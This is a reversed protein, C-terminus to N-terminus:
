DDLTLCHSVVVISLFMVEGRDKELADKLNWVEQLEAELENRKNESENWEVEMNATRAELEDLELKLGDREQALEVLGKELIQIKSGASETHGWQAELESKLTAHEENRTSLQQNVEQLQEELRAKQVGLGEYKMKVEDLEQRLELEVTRFRQTEESNKQDKEALLRKLEEEDFVGVSINGMMDIQEKAERIGEKLERDSEDRTWLSEKLNMIDESRERVLGELTEVEGQLAHEKRLWDTKERELSAIQRHLMRLAEGSAEDMVSREMSEQRSEEVAEELQRCARELEQVKKRWSRLSNKRKADEKEVDSLKKGLIEVLEDRAKLDTEYQNCLETRLALQTQLSIILNEEKSTKRNHKAAGKPPTTPIMTQPTYYTNAHASFPDPESPGGSYVVLGSSSEDNIDAEPQVPKTPTSRLMTQFVTDSMARSRHGKTSPPASAASSSLVSEPKLESSPYAAEDATSKSADGGSNAMSYFLTQGFSFSQSREHLPLPFKPSKENAHFITEDIIEPVAVLPKGQEQKEPEEAAKEKGKGKLDKPRYPTSTMNNSYLNPGGEQSLMQSNDNVSDNLPSSDFIPSNVDFQLGPPPFSPLDLQQSVDFLNSSEDPVIYNPFSLSMNSNDINSNNPSPAPSSPQQTPLSFIEAVSPRSKSPPSRKVSPPSGSASQNAQSLRDLFPTEEPPLPPQPKELLETSLSQDPTIVKYTERAFFRVNQGTGPTNPDRLISRKSNFKDFGPTSLFDSDPPSDKFPQSLQPPQSNEQRLIDISPRRPKEKVSRTTDQSPRSLDQTPRLMDYSSRRPMDKSRSGDTSNVLSLQSAALLDYSEVIGNCSFLRSQGNSHPDIQHRVKKSISAPLGFPSSSRPLDPVDKLAGKSMRKFMNRKSHVSPSSPPSPHPQEIVGTESAHFMSMNPHQEYVKSLVEGGPPPPEEKPHQPKLANTIKSWMDESISSIRPPGTQRHNASSPHQNSSSLRRYCIGDVLRAQCTISFRTPVLRM